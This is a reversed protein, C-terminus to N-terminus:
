PTVTSPYGPRRSAPCHATAVSILRPVSEHIIWPWSAVLPPPPPPLPLARGVLTTPWYQGCHSSLYGVSIGDVVFVSSMEKKTVAGPSLPVTIHSPSYVGGLPAGIRLWDINSSSKCVARAAPLHQM